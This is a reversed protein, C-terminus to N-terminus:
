EIYDDYIIISKYDTDFESEIIVRGENVVFGMLEELTNFEITWFYKELCRMIGDKTITHNFGEERFNKGRAKEFADFSPFGYRDYYTLKERVAGECPPDIENFIQSAREITFKM